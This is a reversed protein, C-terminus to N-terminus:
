FEAPASIFAWLHLSEALEVAQAERRGRFLIGAPLPILAEPEESEIAAIAQKAPEIFATPLPPYHNSTLHITLATEISALGSDVSERLGAAVGNGM